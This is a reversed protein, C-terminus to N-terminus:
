DTQINDAPVGTFASLAQLDKATMKVRGSSVDKLHTPNIGCNTALEEISMKKQAALARVNLKINEM